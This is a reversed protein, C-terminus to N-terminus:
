VTSGICGVQVLHFCTFIGSRISCHEVYETAISECTLLVNTEYLIRTKPHMSRESDFSPITSLNQIFSVLKEFNLSSM